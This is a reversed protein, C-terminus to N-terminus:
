SEEWILRNCDFAVSLNRYSVLPVENECGGTAALLEEYNIENFQQSLLLNGSIFFWGVSM